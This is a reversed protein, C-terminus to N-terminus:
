CRHLNRCQSQRSLLPDKKLVASFDATNGAVKESSFFEVGGKGILYFFLRKARNEKYVVLFSDKISRGFTSIGVNFM